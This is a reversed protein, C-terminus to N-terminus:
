RTKMIQYLPLGVFSAGGCLYEKLPLPNIPINKFKRDVFLQYWESIQRKFAAQAYLPFIYYSQWSYLSLWSQSEHFRIIGANSTLVDPDFDV